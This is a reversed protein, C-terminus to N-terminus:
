IANREPTSTKRLQEESQVDVDGIFNWVRLLLFSVISFVYCARVVWGEGVIGLCAAGSSSCGSSLCGEVFRALCTSESVGM